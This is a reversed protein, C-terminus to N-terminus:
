TEEEDDDEVEDPKDPVDLYEGPPKGSARVTSTELTAIM